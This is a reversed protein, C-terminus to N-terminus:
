RGPLSFSMRHRGARSQAGSSPFSGMGRSGTHSKKNIGAAAPCLGRCFFPLHSSPRLSLLGFNSSAVANQVPPVPAKKRGDARRFGIGFCRRDMTMGSGPAAGAATGQFTRRHIKHKERSISLLSRAGRRRQFWSLSLHSSHVCAATALSRVVSRGPSCGPHENRATQGSGARACASQRGLNTPRGM